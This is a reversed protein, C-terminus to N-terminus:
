FDYFINLCDSYKCIVYCLSTMLVGTNNDSPTELTDVMKFDFTM